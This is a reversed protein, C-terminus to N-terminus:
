NKSLSSPQDSSINKELNNNYEELARKTVFPFKDINKIKKLKLIKNEFSYNLRNKIKEFYNRFNKEKL